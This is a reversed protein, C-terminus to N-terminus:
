WGCGMIAELRAMSLDCSMRPQCGRDAMRTIFYEEYDSDIGINHCADEVDGYRLDDAQALDCLNDLESEIIERADKEDCNCGCMVAKVISEM